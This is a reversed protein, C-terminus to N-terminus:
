PCRGGENSEGDLLREWLEDMEDRGRVRGPEARVRPLIAEVLRRHVAATTEHDYPGPCGPEAWTTAWLLAWSRSERLRRMFLRIEPDSFGDEVLGRVLDEADDVHRINVGPPIISVLNGEFTLM